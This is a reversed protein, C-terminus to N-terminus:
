ARQGSTESLWAAALRVQSPHLQTAASPAHAYAQLAALPSHSPDALAADFLDGMSGVLDAVKFGRIFRRAYGHETHVQLQACCCALDQQPAM